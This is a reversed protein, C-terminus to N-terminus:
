GGELDFQARVQLQRMYEDYGETTSAQCLAIHTVSERATMHSIIARARLWEQAKLRATHMSDAHEIVRGSCLVAAEGHIRDITFSAFTKLAWANEVNVNINM